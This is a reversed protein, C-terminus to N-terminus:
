KNPDETDRTLLVGGPTIVEGPKHPIRLTGGDAQQVVTDAPKVYESKIENKVTTSGARQAYFPDASLAKSGAVGTEELAEKFAEKVETKGLGGGGGPAQQLPAGAGGGGGNGGNGNGSVGNGGGGGGNGGGGGGSTGTSSQQQDTAGAAGQTQENVEGLGSKGRLDGSPTISQQLKDIVARTDNQFDVNDSSLVIGNKLTPSMRALFTGMNKRGTKDVRAFINPNDIAEGWTRVFGALAENAGDRVKKDPSAADKQLTKLMREMSAGSVGALQDPSLGGAAGNVGKYWHPMKGFMTGAYRGLFRNLRRNMEITEPSTQGTREAEDITNMMGTIEEDLQVQNPNGGLTAMRGLAAEKHEDTVHGFMDDITLWKGDVMKFKVKNDGAAISQALLDKDGTLLVKLRGDDHKAALKKDTTENGDKDEYVTQTRENLGKERAEEAQEYEKTEEDKSHAGGAEYAAIKSQRLRKGAEGGTSYIPDWKGSRFQDGKWWQPSGESVREQSQRKREKSFEDRRSSLYEKPKKGLFNGGKNIADYGQSMISGGRKFMSPLLYYPGFFGVLVMIFAIFGGGPLGGVIWAFIRGTYILAIMLPFLLLAKTFNDRWTNWYSQLGKIPLVWLLIAIPSLMVCAIIIVNRFLVTALAIIVSLLITFAILLAGAPNGIALFASTTLAAAVGVQATGAWFNSLHNLVSNLDLNGVGGFPAAILSGIGNGLSDAFDIALKCLEWSLQMAIVAIALKPLVKRVTYADFVSTGVAQSIVMFLLLIILVSAVLNKMILWAKYIGDNSGSDPLFDKSSFNLQNDIFNNMKDAAAGIASTFPCLIWEFTTSGNVICNSTDDGKGQGASSAQWGVVCAKQGDGGNPYKSNGCAEDQTKNNNGDSFGQVCDKYNGANQKSGGPAYDKCAVKAADSVPDATNSFGDNCAANSSGCPNAQGQLKAYVGNFCSTANAANSTYKACTTQMAQTCDSLKDGSYPACINTAPPNVKTSDNVAGSWGIACAVSHQGQFIGTNCYTNEAQATVAGGAEQLSRVRTYGSVCDIQYDANLASNNSFKATACFKKGDATDQATFAHATDPFISILGSVVILVPLVLLILRQKM